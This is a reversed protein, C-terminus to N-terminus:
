TILKGNDMLDLMSSKLVIDTYNPLNDKQPHMSLVTVNHGRNALERMLATNIIAHSKAHFPFIGLINPAEGKNKQLSLLIAGFYL